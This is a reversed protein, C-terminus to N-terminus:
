AGVTPILLFNPGENGSSKSRLAIFPYYLLVYNLQLLNTLVTVAVLFRWPPVVTVCYGRYGTPHHSSHICVLETVVRNRHNCVTSYPHTQAEVLEGDLM